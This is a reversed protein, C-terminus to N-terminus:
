IFLLSFCPSYTSLLVLEDKIEFEERRLSYEIAKDLWRKLSYGPLGIEIQPESAVVRQDEIGVPVM